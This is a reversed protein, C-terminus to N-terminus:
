IPSFVCSKFLPLTLQFPVSDQIALQVGGFASLKTFRLLCGQPQWIVWASTNAAVRVMQKVSAQPRDFPAPADPCTEHLWVATWRVFNAAFAAFEEQIVLGAPSRVKLHHMQFVNKGEKVGAEITQRRNYFTFWGALDTTVQEEGYHLLVGYREKDGTQFRELALDLPYPCNTIVEGQWATMEANKGVRVWPTAPPVRRRLAQIIKANTAKSYVEYGMEILLAVNPGNGFGGDLRFIARIPWPNTRNDEIFQTLRQQFQELEAQLDAVKQQRRELWRQAREVDKYRRGLRRERVALKRRAQALRSHPREPRNRARYMAELEAVRQAWRRREQEVQALRHEIEELRAQAHAQKVEAEQLLARQQTIRKALLDTRRRPRAGTRAEAARALAEAQSSSVTDGPHQEVSLWLRGYTPSHLSVLAAQYGLQVANSMWGFAAGPYTTSTSSVPRGTLDGDYVLVGRDRLALMVERQIFPRSVTELAEKMATVTEETCAKLTRSVGSYDAWGEQGWAQAVALDQDLPHPGRSIDQLYACGAIISVLFEILKTQPTYERRRQPISVGELAEVLGIRQAFFGWTVLMAHSTLTATPVSRNETPLQNM